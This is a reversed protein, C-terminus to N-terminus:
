NETKDLYNQSAKSLNFFGYSYNQSQCLTLNIGVSVTM